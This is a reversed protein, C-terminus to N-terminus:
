AASATTKASRLAEVIQRIGKAVDAWGADRHKSSMVAVSDRPLAQLQGLETQAWACERLIVPIVRASGERHRALARQMEVGFCYDSAIFSASVAVIIIEATDIQASITKEWDGGAAIARDTWTKILGSRELITLHSKLEDVLKEDEHAYSIFVRAAASDATAKIQKALAERLKVFPNWFRESVVGRQRSSAAYIAVPSEPHEEDFFRAWVPEDPEFLAQWDARETLRRMAAESMAVLSVRERWGPEGVHLRFHKLDRVCAEGQAHHEHVVVVMAFSREIRRRREEGPSAEEREGVGDMCIGPLEISRLRAPLTLRLEHGFETVWDFWAADDAQAYSIFISFEFADAIVRNRVEPTPAVPEASPPAVDPANPAPAQAEAATADQAEDVAEAPADASLAVTGGILFGEVAGDFPWKQPEDALRGQYSCPGTWACQRLARRLVADTPAATAAGLTFACVKGASALLPQLAIAEVCAEDVAALWPADILLVVLDFRASSERAPRQVDMPVQTQPALRQDLAAVLHDCLRDSRPRGIVAVSFRASPTAIRAALAQVLRRRQAQTGLEGTLTGLRAIPPAGLGIEVLAVTRQKPLALRLREVEGAAPWRGALVLCHAAPAAVQLAIAIDHLDAADALLCERVAPGADPALWTACWRRAAAPGSVVLEPLRGAAEAWRVHQGAANLAHASWRVLVVTGRTDGWSCAFAHLERTHRLPAEGFSRLDLVVLPPGAPPARQPLGLQVVAYTGFLVLLASGHEDVFLSLRQAAVVWFPGPLDLGTTGWGLPAQAAQVVAFLACVCAVWMLDHPVSAVIRGGLVARALARWLLAGGLALLPVGCLLLSWALGTAVGEWPTGRAWEIVLRQSARQAPEFLLLGWVGLAVGGVIGPALATRTFVSGRQFWHWLAALQGLLLVGCVTWWAASGQAAPLLVCVLAAALLGVMGRTSRGALWALGTRAPVPAEPVAAAEPRSPAQM